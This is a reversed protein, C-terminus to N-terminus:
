YKEADSVCCVKNYNIYKCYHCSKNHQCSWEKKGWLLLGEEDKESSMLDSHLFFYLTIKFLIMKMM